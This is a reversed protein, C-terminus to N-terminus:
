CRTEVRPIKHNKHPLIEASVQEKAVTSSTKVPLKFLLIFYGCVIVCSLQVKPHGRKVCRSRARFQTPPQRMALEPADAFVASGAGALMQHICLGDVRTGSDGTPSGIASFRSGSLPHRGNRLLRRGTSCACSCSNWEKGCVGTLRRFACIGCM